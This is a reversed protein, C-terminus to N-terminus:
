AVNYREKIIDEVKETIDTGENSLIVNNITEYDALGDISNLCEKLCYTALTEAEITVIQYGNIDTKAGKSFKPSVIICYLSGNKRLHNRIRSTNIGELRNKTKKADVNVKYMDETKNNKKMICLLDTDGAGSIIEVNINERFLEFIPKLSSEFSKGDNTGYKSQYVMNKISDILINNKDIDESIDKIYDLMNFEYLNRIWDEKTLATAQTEPIEFASHKDILIQAQKIINKDLVIYGPIEKHKGVGTRRYTKTNGHKFYFVKGDNYTEDSRTEFVRAQEFIPIFYYNIEHTCNAFIDDSNKISSFLKLKQDYSLKRYKIIELILEDYTIKNITELFPLFWIFEDIYIRKNIREDLLMKIILRGMYINFNEPTNSYPSPYQMSFLNILFAENLNLTKNDSRLFQSTTSLLFKGDKKYGQMYFCMQSLRVGMTSTSGKKSRGKYLEENRLKEKIKEKDIKGNNNGIIANVFANMLETSSINKQFIWKNDKSRNLKLMTM